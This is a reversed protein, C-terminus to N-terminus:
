HARHLQLSAIGACVLVPLIIALFPHFGYVLSAPALLDQVFKLGIGFLLGTFVRLSMSSERLPGFVFSIAILLLSVIVL